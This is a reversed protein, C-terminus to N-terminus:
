CTCVNLGGQCMQKETSCVKDKFNFSLSAADWVLSCPVYDGIIEQNMIWLGGPGSCTFVTLQTTCSVISIVFCCCALELGGPVRQHQKPPFIIHYKAEPNWFWLNNPRKQCQWPWWNAEEHYFWTISRMLPILQTHAPPRWEGAM